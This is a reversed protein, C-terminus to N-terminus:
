DFFPWFAYFIVRPDILRLLYRYQDEKVLEIANLILRRAAIRALRADGCMVGLERKLIYDQGKMLRLSGTKVTNGEHWRYSATVRQVYKGKYRRALRLWLDWDEIALGPTFVGVTNLASKRWMMAMGPLFNGKLLVKYDFCTEPSQIDPRHQLYFRMFSRFADPANSRNGVADLALPQGEDDIFDADGFSLATDNDSTELAALLTSIKDHKMLDDSSISSIYEGSAWAVGRNLTTAVGENAKSVYEFRTFRRECEPILTRVVDDTGDTSGDNLIILEINQYDQDIVSRISDAIYREHNYAPMIVSVLHQM